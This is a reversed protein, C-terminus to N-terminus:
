NNVQKFRVKKTKTESILKNITIQTKLLDECCKILEHQESRLSENEKLLELYKEKYNSCGEKIKRSCWYPM